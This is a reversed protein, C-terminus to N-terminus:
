KLFKKIEKFIFDSAVLNGKDNLHMQDYFYTSKKQKKHFFKNLDIFNINNKKSIDIILGNLENHLELMKKENLSKKQQLVSYNSPQTMLIINIGDIKCASIFKLLNNSFETKIKNIKYLDIELNKKLDSFEHKPNKLNIIFRTKSYIEFINPIFINKIYKLFDYKTYQNSFNNDDLYEVSKRSLIMDNYNTTESYILSSLDNMNNM